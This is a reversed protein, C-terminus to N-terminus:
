FISEVDDVAAAEDVQRADVAVEVVAAVPQLADM